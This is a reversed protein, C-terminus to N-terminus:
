GWGPCHTAFKCADPVDWVNDNPKNLTFNDFKQYCWYGSPPLGHMYFGYPVGYDKPSDDRFGYSFVGAGALWVANWDVLTDGVMNQYKVSLGKAFDQGPPHFPYGIICCEPADEPRDSHLVVYAAQVVDSDDYNGFNESNEPFKQYTESNQSNKINETKTIGFFESKSVPINIFDCSFDNWGSLSGNPFVPICRDKYQERMVTIGSNKYNTDYFTKGYTFNFASNPGNNYPPVDSENSVFYMIWDMTFQSPYVFEPAVYNSESTPQPTDPCPGFQSFNNHAGVTCHPGIITDDTVQWPFHAKHHISDHSVIYQESSDYQSM